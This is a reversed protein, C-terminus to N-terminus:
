IVRYGYVHFRTWYSTSVKFEVLFTNRIQVTLKAINCTGSPLTDPTNSDKLVILYPM